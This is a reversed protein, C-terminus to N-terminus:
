LSVERIWMITSLDDTWKGTQPEFLRLKSYGDTGRVVAWNLRHPTKAGKMKLSIMGFLPAYKLGEEDCGKLIAGFAIAAFDDCDPFTKKYSLSTHDWYRDALIEAARETLELYNRDHQISGRFNVFRRFCRKVFQADQHRADKTISSKGLGLASKLKNWIRM